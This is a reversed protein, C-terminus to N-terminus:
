RYDSGRLRCGPDARAAIGALVRWLGSFARRRDARLGAHRGRVRPDDAYVGRVRDGKAVGRQRLVNALRCVREHLQRYSIRQSNGPEDGEWLLATQDGRTPLHRDLCNHCVNLQGGHFWEIRASRYDWQQVRDWRRSWELFTEAQEAWFGDSDEMSRRYMREYGAQDLLAKGQLPGPVPYTKGTTAKM